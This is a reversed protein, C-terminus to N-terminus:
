CQKNGQFDYEAIVGCLRWNRTGKLRNLATQAESVNQYLYVDCPATVWGDPGWMESTVEDWVMWIREPLKKRRRSM